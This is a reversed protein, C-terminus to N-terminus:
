KFVKLQQSIWLLHLYVRVFWSNTCVVPFHKLPRLKLNDTWADSVHESKCERLGVQISEMSEYTSPSFCIPSVMSAKGFKQKIKKDEFGWQFLMIVDRSLVEGYLFFFFWFVASLIWIPQSFFGWVNQKSRIWACVWQNWPIKLQKLVLNFVWHFDRHKTM